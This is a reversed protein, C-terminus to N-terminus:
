PGARGIRLTVSPDADSVLRWLALPPTGPVLLTRQGLDTAALTLEDLVVERAPRGVYRRPDGASAAVPDLARYYEDLVALEDAALEVLRLEGAPTVVFREEALSRYVSNRYRLTIAERELALEALRAGASDSLVLRPDGEREEAPGTALAVASALLVGAVAARAM